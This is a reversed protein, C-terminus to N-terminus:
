RAPAGFYDYVARGADAIVQESSEEDRGRKILVAVAVRGGDPLRMLGVDNYTGIAPFTGTKEAVRASAPVRARLREGGTRCREMMGLLLDAHEADLLEGKALRAVLDTLAAPSATDRPDALFRASAERRKASVSADMAKKLATYTWGSAPAPGAGLFDAAMEAESRDIRIGEIGLQRLHATLREAGGVAKLLVDNATNDSDVVMQELLERVPVDAPSRGKSDRLPSYGPYYEESEIHLTDDLRLAGSQAQHLVVLALPLKCVSAMPFLAGANLSVREGTDLNVASIGVDGGCGAAIRSLEAELEAGRESALGASPTAVYNPLPVLMAALLVAAHVPTVFMPSDEEM